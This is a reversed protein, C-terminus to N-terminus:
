FRTKFLVNGYESLKGMENKLLELEEESLLSADDEIVIQNTKLTM